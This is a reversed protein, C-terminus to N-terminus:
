ASIPGSHFRFEQDPDEILARELALFDEARAAIPEGAAQEALTLYDQYHRAESKLLSTYFDALKEDLFPALAAFRECSRAEIIAGVILVDVLRGPDESRVEQRLGAAYRAPTLHCYDVGRKKMIALVQEFHRLEERALRSMKNLLDTNDVYRYMLSLATSAAKKECHAHDILMLDQNALANDIWQQPTRCPLFNHIEQLADNM